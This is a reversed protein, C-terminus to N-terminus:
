YSVQAADMNRDGYCEYFYFFLCISVTPCVRFNFYTYPIFCYDNQTILSFTINYAGGVILNTFLFTVALNVFDSM